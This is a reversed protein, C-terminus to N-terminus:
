MQPPPATSKRVHLTSKLEVRRPEINTGNEEAEIAQILLEVAAKGMEYMPQEIATLSPTFIEAWDPDDFTILSVKEPCPVGLERMARLVGLGM